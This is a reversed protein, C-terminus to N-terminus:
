RLRFNYGLSFALNMNRSAGFTDAKSSPFINGLGYYFRAELVVSHRPLIYFEVGAGAMIGYDFRNSVDAALQETQRPRSPWDPSTSPATYDFNASIGSKFLFGIEPGLNVFGKVRPSGFYIHSLVPLKLYTLTRKYRLPNEEGFNENWGRQSWGLEAIVGFFKEESYRFTFAGESGMLWNQSISPSFSMRSMTAGAHAGLWIHPEYHTEGSAHTISLASLIVAGVLRRISPSLSFTRM